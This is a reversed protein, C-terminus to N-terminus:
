RYCCLLVAERWFVLAAGKGVGVKPLLGADHGEGLKPTEPRHLAMAGLSGFPGGVAQLALGQASFSCWHGTTLSCRTSFPDPRGLRGGSHPVLGQEEGQKGSGMCAGWSPDHGFNLTKVTRNSPPILALNLAVRYFM